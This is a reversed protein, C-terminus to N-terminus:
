SMLFDHIIRRAVGMEGALAEIEHNLAALWEPVPLADSKLTVGRVAKARQAALRANDFLLIYVHHETEITVKVVHSRSSFFGDRKREIGVRGPLAGSMRTAFAEMFSGLDGQAKRMWAASLDFADSGDSL